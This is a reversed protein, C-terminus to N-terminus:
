QSCRSPDFNLFFDDLVDLRVMVQFLQGSLDPLIEQSVTTSESCSCFTHLRREARRESVRYELRRNACHNLESLTVNGKHHTPSHSQQERQQDREPLKASSGSDRPMTLCFAITAGVNSFAPQSNWQVTKHPLQWYWVLASQGQIGRAAVCNDTHPTEVCAM